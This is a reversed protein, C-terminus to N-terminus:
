VLADAVGALLATLGAADWAAARARLTLVTRGDHGVAGLSIGSGGATVVGSVTQADESGIASLSQQEAGEGSAFAPLALPTALAAAVAIVGIRRAGRRHM